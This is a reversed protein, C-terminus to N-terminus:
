DSMVKTRNTVLRLKIERNRDKTKNLVTGYSVSNNTLMEGLLDQNFGLATWVPNITPLIIIPCTWRRTSRNEGTFEWKFLEGNVWTDYSASLINGGLSETESWVLFSFYLHNNNNNNWDWQRAYMENETAREVFYQLFLGILKEV